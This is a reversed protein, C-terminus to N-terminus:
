RTGGAGGCRSHSLSARASPTSGHSSAIRAHRSAPASAWAPRTGCGEIRAGAQLQRRSSSPTERRRRLGDDDPQLDDATVTRRWGIGQVSSIARSSSTQSIHAPPMAASRWPWCGRTVASTRSSRRIPACATSRPRRMTSSSNKQRGSRDRRAASRSSRRPAAAPSRGTRRPSKRPAAPRARASPPRREHLLEHAVAARYRARDHAARSTAPAAASAIAETSIGSRASAGGSTTSTVPKRM